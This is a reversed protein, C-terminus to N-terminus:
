LFLDDGPHDLRIRNQEPPLRHQRGGAGARERHTQQHSRQKPQYQEHQQQQQQQQQPQAAACNKRHHRASHETAFCRPCNGCPHGQQHVDALHRDLKTVACNCISCHEGVGHQKAEHLRLAARTGFITPCHGCPHGQGHKSAKHRQLSYPTSLCSSCM